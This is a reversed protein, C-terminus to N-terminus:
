LRNLLLYCSRCFMCTRLNGQAKADDDNLAPLNNASPNSPNISSMLARTQSMMTVLTENDLVDGEAAALAALLHDHHEQYEQEKDRESRVEKEKEKEKERHEKPPLQQQQLQQNEHRMVYTLLQTEIVERGVNFDVVNV